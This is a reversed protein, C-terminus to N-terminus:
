NPPLRLRSPPVCGLESRVLLERGGRADSICAKGESPHSISGCTVEGLVASIGTKDFTERSEYWRLRLGSLVFYRKRWSKFPGREHRFLYGSATAEDEEATTAPTASMHSHADNGLGVLQTVSVM